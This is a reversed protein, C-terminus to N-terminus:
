KGELLAKIDSEVQEYTFQSDPDDLTYRKVEKGDPGYVFVAPIANIGLQEYGAGFEEDLLINTFTAGKTKLFELAAAQAQTDERDDLSLSVCALGKDKFTKSMAVLHPFNEKCPGCTTAWVDVVTYKVDPNAVAKQFEAFTKKQLAIGESEAPANDAFLASPAAAALDIPTVAPSAEPAIAAEPAKEEPQPAEAAPAPTSESPAEPKIVTDPTASVPTTEPTIADGCGVITAALLGLSVCLLRSSMM